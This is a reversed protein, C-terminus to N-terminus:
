YQLNKKKNVQVLIDIITCLNPQNRELLNIFSFLFYVYYHTLIFITLVCLEIFLFDNMAVETMHSRIIMQGFQFKVCFKLRECCLAAAFVRIVVM